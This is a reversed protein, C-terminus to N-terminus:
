CSLKNTSALWPSVGCYACVYDWFTASLPVNLEAKAEFTEEVSPLLHREEHPRGMSKLVGVVSQHNSYLWTQWEQEWRKDDKSIPLPVSLGLLYMLCPSNHTSRIHQSLGKLNRTREVRYVVQRMAQKLVDNTNARSQQQEKFLAKELREIECSKDHNSQLLIRIYEDNSFM